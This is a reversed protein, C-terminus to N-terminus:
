RSFFVINDNKLSSGSFLVPSFRQTEVRWNAEGVGIGRGGALLRVGFLDDNIEVYDKRM